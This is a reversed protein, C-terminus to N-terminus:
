MGRRGVRRTALGAAQELAGLLGKGLQFGLGGGDAPDRTRRPLIESGEPGISRGHLPPLAARDRKPNTTQDGVALHSTKSQKRPGGEWSLRALNQKQKSPSSSTQYYDDVM